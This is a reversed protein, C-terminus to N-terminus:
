SIPPIGLGNFVNISEALNSPISTPVSTAQPSQGYDFHVTKLNVAQKPSLTPLDEEIDFLKPSKDAQCSGKETAEKITSENKTAEQRELLEKLTHTRKGFKSPKNLTSKM